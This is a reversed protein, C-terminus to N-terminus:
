ISVCDSSERCQDCPRCVKEAATADAAAVVAGLLPANLLRGLTILPFIQHVCLRTSSLRHFGTMNAVSVLNSARQCARLHPNQCFLKYGVQYRTM